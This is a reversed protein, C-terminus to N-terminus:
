SIKDKLIGMMLKYSIDTLAIPIFDSVKPKYKKKILITKSNKWNAPVVGENLINNFILTLETLIQDNDILYEYLETKIHDLGPAKGAKMKKIQSKVETETICPDDRSSIQRDVKM